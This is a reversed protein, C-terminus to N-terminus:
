RVLLMKRVASFSGATLRYFYVGSALNAGDFTFSYRGAPYRSNALTSVQRGLVDYVVLRVDSDGTWQGRIVTKPNFPNPYNQELAFTRPTLKSVENHVYEETGVLLTFQMRNSITQYSYVNSRRIDVSSSNMANVLVVSLQDPIADVGLFTIKGTGRQPNWVEFHWAQGSGTDSRVDTAFRPYRSDWEPHLFYLFGNDFFLPPEHQDLANRGPTAASSIGIYNDRDSSHEGDFILEVRWEYGPPDAHKAVSGAFPYPFKLSSVNASDNFFYYGKFPDLTTGSSTTTTGDHEWFLTGASLGNATIVASRLVSVTFPNCIINWGQHVGIAFTGDQALPPLTDTRSVNLTKKSLLWYGEGTRLVSDATLDQYYAPYTTDMGTERLIRWDVNQSGPLISGVNRTGIGPLGFMKYSDSSLDGSFTVSGSLFASSLTTLTWTPSWPGSGAVNRSSVHWYFRTNNPLGNVQRGPSVLAPDRLVVLTFLSDMAMELSYGTANAVSSWSMVLPLAQSVAGNSPSLPNPPSLAALGTGSVTITDHVTLATHTFVITGTQPNTDKPSCTVTFTRTTGPQIVANGPSVTFVANDSVVSSITLPTTGTNTM